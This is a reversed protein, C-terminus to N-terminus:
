VEVRVGLRRDLVKVVPLNRVKSVAELIVRREEEKLMELDGDKFYSLARLSESPQFAMGYMIRASALGLSLDIGAFLMAAIDRYDKAEARQQIVKLKTAMLDELSAVQLMGDETFKPNGVRGFDINGFFSIKVVGGDTSEIPVHVTSTNPRNQLVTSTAVFPIAEQLRDLDFAQESFFDFDVSSRHGLRLAVATGGYLVFGLATVPRLEPWLRRQAPPLIDMRPIFTDIATM